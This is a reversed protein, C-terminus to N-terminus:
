TSSLRSGINGSEGRVWEMERWGNWVVNNKKEKLLSASTAKDDRLVNLFFFFIDNELRTCSRERRSALPARRRPRGRPSEEAEVMSSPAERVECM